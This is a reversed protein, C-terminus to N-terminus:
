AAAPKQGVHFLVSGNDPQWVHVTKFGAAEIQSQLQGVSVRNVRPWQGLSHMIGFLPAMLRFKLKEGLCFTSSIFHGGPKLAAYIAALAAEPDDLLHIINMGLAADYHGDTVTYSDMDAVEFRVNDIQEDALKGCAIAIMEPSVDIADIQKVYPANLIATSGTGCGFELLKTDPTFYERMLDLKVEYAEQNAIPQRSYKDATKDRFKAKDPM